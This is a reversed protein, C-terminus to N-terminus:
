SVLPFLPTFLVIIMLLLTGSLDGTYVLLAAAGSQQALTAKEALTCQGRQILAIWPQKQQQQQIPGCLNEVAVITASIGEKPTSPSGNLLRTEFVQEKDDVTITLSHELSDNRILKIEQLQVQYGFETVSKKIYDLTDTHGKTGVLRNGGNGDAFGQLVKLHSM